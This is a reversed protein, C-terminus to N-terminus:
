KVYKANGYRTFIPVEFKACNSQVLQPIVSGLSMTPSVHNIKGM